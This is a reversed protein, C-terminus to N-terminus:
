HLLAIWRERRRLKKLLFLQGVPDLIASDVIEEVGRDIAAGVRLFNLLTTCEGVFTSVDECASAGKWLHAVPAM